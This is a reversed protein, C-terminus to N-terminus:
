AYRTSIYFMNSEVSCLLFVPFSLGAASQDISSFFFSSPRLIRVRWSKFSSLLPLLYFFDHVPIEPPTFHMMHTLRSVFNKSQGIGCACVRQKKRLHRLSPSMFAATVTPNKSFSFCLLSLKVVVFVTQIHM